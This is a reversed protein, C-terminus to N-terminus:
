QPVMAVYPNKMEEGKDGAAAAASVLEKDDNRDQARNPSRSRSKSRIKRESEGVSKDRNALLLEEAALKDEELKPVQFSCHVKEGFQTDDATMLGFDVVCIGEKKPATCAM